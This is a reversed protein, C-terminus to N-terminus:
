GHGGSLGGHDVSLGCEVMVGTLGGGHGWDTVWSGM